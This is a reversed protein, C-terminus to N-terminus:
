RFRGSEGNRSKDSFADDFQNSGDGRDSSETYEQYQRGSSFLASDKKLEAMSQELLSPKTLFQWRLWFGMGASVVGFVVMMSALVAIRHEDWFLVVILSVGLLLAVGAFFLTCLALFVYSSLRLLEEELEVTILELRTQMMSVLTGILRTLTVTISM